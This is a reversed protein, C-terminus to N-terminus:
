THSVRVHGRPLGRGHNDLPSLRNCRQPDTFLLPSLEDYDPVMTGSQGNCPLSTKTCCITSPQRSFTLSKPTM